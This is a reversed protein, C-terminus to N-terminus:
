RIFPIRRNHDLPVLGLGVKCLYEADDASIIGTVDGPFEWLVNGDYTM